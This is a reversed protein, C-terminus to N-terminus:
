FSRILREGREVGPGCAIFSNEAACQPCKVIVKKDPM